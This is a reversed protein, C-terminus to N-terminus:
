TNPTMSQARKPLEWLKTGYMLNLMRGPDVLDEWVKDDSILQYISILQAAKCVLVLIPVLSVDGLWTAIPGSQASEKYPDFLKISRDTGCSLLKRDQMWTLGKVVNEHARIQWIEERSPVDWVKIVGDGSASAFRDLSQPDKAINYVGDIHGNGLQALFPAAFM